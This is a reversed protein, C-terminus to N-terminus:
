RINVIGPNLDGKFEAKKEADGKHDMIAGMKNGFAAKATVWVAYGQDLPLLRALPASRPNFPTEPVPHLADRRSRVM